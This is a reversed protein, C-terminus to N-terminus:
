QHNGDNSSVVSGVESWSAPTHTGDHVSGLDSLTGDSMNEFPDNQIHSLSSAVSPTSSINQVQAAGAGQQDAFPNQTQYQPNQATANEDTAQSPPAYYFDPEGDETHQSSALSFYSSQSAPGEPQGQAESHASPTYVFGPTESTPTLDVLSESPHNSSTESPLTSHFRDRNINDLIAQRHEPSIKPAMDSISQSIDSPGEGRRHLTTSSTPEVGTAQAQLEEDKIPALKVHEKLRGDKDVLDDFSGVSGSSRRKRAELISARRIIDERARRRRAEAEEGLDETMSIDEPSRRDADPNEQPNIEDGLNHLALAIKRRSNRVWQKVQPNEYVAIGAAVLVTVTIVLGKALPAPM